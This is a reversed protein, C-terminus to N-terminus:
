ALAVKVWNSTPVSYGGVAWLSNSNGKQAQAVLQGVTPTVRSLFKAAGTELHELWQLGLASAWRKARALKAQQCVFQTRIAQILVM